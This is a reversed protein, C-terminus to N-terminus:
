GLPGGDGGGGGQGPERRKEERREKPRALGAGFRYSGEKKAQRKEGRSLSCACPTVEKGGTATWWRWRSGVRERLAV